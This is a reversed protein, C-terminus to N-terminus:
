YFRHRFGHGHFGRGYGYFHRGYFPRGYFRRGYFGRGYYHALDVRAEDGGQIAPQSGTMKGTMAHSANATIPIGTALAAAALGIALKRM